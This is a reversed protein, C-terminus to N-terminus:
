LMPAVLNVALNAALAAPDAEDIPGVPSVVGANNILVAKAFAKGRLHADMRECARALERADALDAEIRMGGPIAGSPARALAILGNDGTAAIREALAAGLGKTTGTVIYLNM